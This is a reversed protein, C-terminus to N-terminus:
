SYELSLHHRIPHHRVKARQDLGINPGSPDPTGILARRSPQTGAQLASELISDITEANVALPQQGRSRRLHEGLELREFSFSRLLIGPYLSRGDTYAGM